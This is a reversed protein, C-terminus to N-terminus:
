PANDAAVASPAWCLHQGGDLAVMQGTVSRARLFFDLCARMEDLQPGRQLPMRAVQRDFQEQTQKPAPLTFGPGIGNVRIRPALALALQRTLSWLGSKAVSYSIFHPTLNWVREDLMNVILGEHGEPLQRAFDQSLLFPARLGTELHLDWTERTVSNWEDREFASANNVLVGLPGVLATAKAVLDRVEEERSLDAQLVAGSGGAQEIEELTSAAEELSRGYHIVVAFGAAALELALARGIRRAAGTVLAGPAYHGTGGAGGEVSTVQDSM